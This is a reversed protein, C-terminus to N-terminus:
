LGARAHRRRQRSQGYQAHHASARARRRRLRRQWHGHSFRRRNMAYRKRGLGPCRANCGVNLRERRTRDRVDLRKVTSFPKRDDCPRTRGAVCQSDGVNVLVLTSAFHSEGRCRM